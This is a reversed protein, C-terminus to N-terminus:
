ADFVTSKITGTPRIAAVSRLSGQGSDFRSRLPHKNELITDLILDFIDPVTARLIRFCNIQM